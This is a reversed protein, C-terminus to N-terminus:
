EDEALAKTFEEEELTKLEMELITMAFEFNPHESNRIGMNRILWKANQITAPVIRQRPLDMTNMIDELTNNFRRDM